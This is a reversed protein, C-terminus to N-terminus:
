IEELQKGGQFPIQLEAKWNQQPNMIKAQIANQYTSM